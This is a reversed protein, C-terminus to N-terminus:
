PNVQITPPPVVPGPKPISAVYYMMWVVALGLLVLAGTMYKIASDSNTNKDRGIRDGNSWQDGVVVNVGSLKAENAAIREQLGTYGDRLEREVRQLEPLTAKTAPTEVRFCVLDELSSEPFRRVTLEVPVIHGRKHRYRKSMSYQDTIGSVVEAVSALDGGVDGQVTIDIWTKPRLETISYGTLKEFASNVWVFENQLGICAMPHDADECLSKWFGQPINSEDM